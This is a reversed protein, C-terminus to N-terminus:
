YFVPHTLIRFSNLRLESYVNLILTWNKIQFTKYKFSIMSVAILDNLERFNYPFDDYELITNNVALSSNLKFSKQNQSESM